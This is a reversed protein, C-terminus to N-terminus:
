FLNELLDGDSKDIFNIRKQQKKKLKDKLM